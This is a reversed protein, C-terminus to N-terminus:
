FSECPCNGDKYSGTDWRCESFCVLHDIAQGGLKVVCGMILGFVPNENDPLSNDKDRCQLCTRVCDRWEGNGANECVTKAALCYYAKQCPNFWGNTSRCTREYYKCDGFTGPPRGVLGSPDTFITPRSGVYQYLNMGDNYQAMAEFGDDLTYVSDRAIFRGVAPAASHGIATRSATMQGDPDRSLFRGMHPAYFALTDQTLLSFCCVFFTGAFIRRSNM